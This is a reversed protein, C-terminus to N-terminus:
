LGAFLALIAGGALVFSLVVTVIALIFLVLAVTKLWKPCDPNLAMGNKDTFSGKMFNIFDILNGIGFCGCTFLWM